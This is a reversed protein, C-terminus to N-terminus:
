IEAKLASLIKEHNSKIREMDGPNHGWNLSAEDGDRRPFVHMHYHFVTQGAAPGNAQVLNMGPPSLVADVARAVRQIVRMSRELDSAEAQFLTEAHDKLVVLCHGDNFPNIDMFSLIRDDEYLKLSPIEGKVIKCFICDPESRM